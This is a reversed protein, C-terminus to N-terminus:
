RTKGCCRCAPWRRSAKTASPRMWRRADHPFRKDHLYDPTTFPLRTDVVVSVIGLNRAPVMHGTNRWRATPLWWTSPAWGADYTSLWAVQSGLLKRSRSVVTHLLEHLNLRGSLDRASEIVALMGSERQQWLDLRNRVAMGM